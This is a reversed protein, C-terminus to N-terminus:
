FPVGDEDTPEDFATVNSQTPYEKKKPKLLELIQALAITHGVQANRIAELMESTYSDKEVRKPVSFNLYQGNETIDIEVEDGVKWDKTQVGDFGSLYKDGKSEVKLTLRTYPRGTKKSILPSGEKDTTDRKLWTIKEKM